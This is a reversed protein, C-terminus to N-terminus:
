ANRRQYYTQMEARIRHESDAVAKEVRDVSKGIDDVSTSMQSLEGRVTIQASFYGVIAAVGMPVLWSLIGSIDGQVVVGASTVGAALAVGASEAKFLTM